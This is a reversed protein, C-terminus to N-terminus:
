KNLSQSLKEAQAQGWVPAMDDAPKFQKFRTLAETIAPRAADAGGGLAGPTFLKTRAEILYPRPNAPDQERSRKLLETSQVSYDKWRAMPDALIRTNVIMAQLALIESNDPSLVIAKELLAEAKAALPDIKDKEKVGMAMIAHCLSAYYFPQWFTKATEAAREFNNALVAYTAPHAATDLRLLNEKMVAAFKTIGTASNTQAWSGQYFVAMIIIFTVKKM